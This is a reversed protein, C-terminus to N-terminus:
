TAKRNARPEWSVLLVSLAAAIGYALLSLGVLTFLSSPRPDHVQLWWGGVAIVSLRVTQAIVPGVIRGSGMSAFYLALALGLFGYAPGAHVFYTRAAALVGANDTFLRTWVEPAVAVVLGISGILAAAFGGATWAVRRARQIDGAGIAMGVMPVSAVGIAFTIPVLLFELRAGIGYGALAETGFSAVIRTMILVTLVSQVPSICAVAGVKLIDRFMEWHLPGVVRLRIRARGSVLHWTFLATGVAFAIGQAYGVGATGLRPVGLLGLGLIAGLAVQLGAVLLLVASPVRMNGTGRVVSALTNTSWVLMAGLFVANSYSVAEGLAAGSGGLGTYIAPGLGVLLATFMVGATAAIVLAHRALAEAREVNGAGLSRSIASSVGGGMAGGSMMQMLMVMPFALAFGALPAIGLIGIYATEAIAVSATAIMAAMNPAALRALTPLIPGTLLPNTSPAAPAAPGQKAASTATATPTTHAMSM